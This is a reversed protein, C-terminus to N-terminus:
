ALRRVDCGCVPVDPGDDVQSVHALIGEIFHPINKAPPFGEDHRAVVVRSGEEFLIGEGDEM